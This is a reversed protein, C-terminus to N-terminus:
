GLYDGESFMPKAYMDFDEKASYAWQRSFSREGPLFGGTVAHITNSLDILILDGENWKWWFSGEEKKVVQDFVWETIQKYLKIDATTAENSGVRCPIEDNNYPHMRLIKRGTNLHSIICPREINLHSTNKIYCNNLFNKWEDNLRDYLDSANIFGTKGSENSCTFKDMKWSAAIQPKVREVHELHWDIFLDDTFNKEKIMQFTFLHDEPHSETIHGWNLKQGFMQMISSQEDKNLNIKPFILLGTELFLNIYNDLNFKIDNLSSNKIVSNM